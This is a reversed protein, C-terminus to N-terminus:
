ECPWRERAAMAIAAVPRESGWNRRFEPEMLRYQLEFFLQADPNDRWPLAAALATSSGPNQLAFVCNESLMASIGILYGLCFGEDIRDRCLNVFGIVTSDQARSPVPICTALALSLCAILASVRTMNM